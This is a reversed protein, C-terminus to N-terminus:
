FFNFWRYVGVYYSGIMAPPGGALSFGQVLKTYGAQFYMQRFQYQIRTAFMQTRNNSTLTSSTTDSFARAYSASITLRRVPSIGIGGSYSHGGYLVISTPNVIPVPIPIPAVGAGTLIGNGSSKAYAGSVGIWKVSLATSYSQNFSTTGSQQTLGTQSGTATAGWHSARGLKRGIGANYGYSSTTYAILFTQQNQSYNVGGFLDWGFVKRSYNISSIWGLSNVSRPSVTNEVLGGTANLFGGLFENSYTATGTFSNASLTSGFISQERHDVNGSFVLHAAPVQYNAYNNVDLAHSTENLNSQELVGGASLVANFLTGALNDNYQANTGFSLKSFPTFSMGANLSDITGSYSGGVYDASTDSRSAGVSFSGNFPLRHGVGVTFSNSSTNSAEPTQNAILDPIQADNATYRYSANLNFGDLM